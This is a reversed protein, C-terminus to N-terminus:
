CIGRDEATERGGQLATPSSSTSLGCTHAHRCTSGLPVLPGFARPRPQAARASVGRDRGKGCGQRHITCADSLSLFFHLPWLIAVVLFVLPPLLAPACRKGDRVSFNLGAAGIISRSPTPFYAAARGSRFAQERVPAPKETKIANGQKDIARKGIKAEQIGLVKFCSFLIVSM